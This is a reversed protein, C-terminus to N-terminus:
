NLRKRCRYGAQLGNGKVSGYSTCTGDGCRATVRFSRDSRSKIINNPLESGVRREKEDTGLQIKGMSDLIVAPGTQKMKVAAVLM